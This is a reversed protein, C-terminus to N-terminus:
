FSLFAKIAAFTPDGPKSVNAISTMHKGPVIVVDAADRSFPVRIADATFGRLAADDHDLTCGMAIIGALDRPVLGQAKLYQPNTAVVAALHCGSSHGFLFLRQPDGGRQDILRRLTVVAAAVDDPMAAWAYTPALRYDMSACAIGASVFPKCVNRYPPSDRREGSAQLSGGHIFLVTAKPRAAPWHIDMVQDPTGGDVYALGHVERPPSPPFTPQAALFLLSALAVFLNKMGTM